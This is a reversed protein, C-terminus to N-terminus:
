KNDNREKKKNAKMKKFGFRKRGTQRPSRVRLETAPAEISEFKNVSPAGKLSDIANWAVILVGRRLSLRVVVIFTM